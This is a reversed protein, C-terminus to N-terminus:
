SGSGSAHIDQRLKNSFFAFCVKWGTVSRKAEPASHDADDVSKTGGNSLENGAQSGNPTTDTTVNREEDHNKETRLEGSSSDVTM